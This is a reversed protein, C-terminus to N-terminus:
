IDFDMKDKTEKLEKFVKKMEATFEEAMKLSEEADRKHISITVDYQVTFRKRRTTKIIKLYKQPIIGIADLIELLLSFYREDVLRAKKIFLLEFAILTAYHTETKIGIEALLALVAHYMSYYSKVIVWRFNKYEELLSVNKRIKKNTLFYHEIRASFLDEESWEMHKSSWKVYDDRIKLTGKNQQEKFKRKLYDTDM